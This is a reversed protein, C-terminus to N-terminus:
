LRDPIVGNEQEILPALVGVLVSLLGEQSLQCYCYFDALKGASLPGSMAGSSSSSPSPPGHSLQIACLNHWGDLRMM